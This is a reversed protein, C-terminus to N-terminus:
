NLAIWHNDLRIGPVPAPAEPAGRADLALVQARGGAWIHETTATLACAEALAIRGQWVGERSFLAVSEAFPCSVAFSDGV